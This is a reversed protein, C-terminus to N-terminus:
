FRQNFLIFKFDKYMLPYLNIKQEWKILLNVTAFTPIIKEVKCLEILKIDATVEMYKTMSEYSRIKM